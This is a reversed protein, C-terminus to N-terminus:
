RPQEPNGRHYRDELRVIDDEGLYDGTQVEIIEVPTDGPNELRHTVGVPIDTSETKRLLLREDGKVVAATGSVVVWHEARRHHFQLSLAAGPNVTLRKVQFGPGSDVTEYSGWPRHVRRHNEQEPRGEARLATVLDKVDQVSDKGAVLVADPTEVAIVDELGVAALLRHTGILLSGTTSEAHVDGVLVNGEADRAGDEWLASWAGIDSWGADMPVVACDVSASTSAEGAAREMVAYDISDVPCGEFAASGPRLFDGDRSSNSHAERCAAAIDPRHKGIQELWVSARMVFMGSNWLFAGSSVMAEAAAIEPKEVFAAVHFPGSEGASDLAPGKKVYGYGTKPSDPVIGFTVLSGGDALGVGTRVASQFPPLDRIVHDAPLVLMVPDHLGADPDALALAALTLAPATNRSVPELIISLPPKGIERAQEAVLFRHEENCVVVASAIGEIGDLRLITGQFLSHDGTLNLFPKPFYERSLPWLRTGSGGALIVPHVSM